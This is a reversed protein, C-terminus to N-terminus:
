STALSHRTALGQPTEEEKGLGVTEEEGAMTEALHFKSEWSPETLFM